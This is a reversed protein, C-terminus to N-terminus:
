YTLKRFYGEDDGGAKAIFRKKGPIRLWRSKEGRVSTLDLSDYRGAPCHLLRRRLRVHDNLRLRRQARGILDCYRCTLVRRRRRRRRRWLGRAGGNRRRLRGDHHGRHGLHLHFREVLVVVDVGGHVAFIARIVFLYDASVLV